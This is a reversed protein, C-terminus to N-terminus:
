LNRSAALREIRLSVKLAMDNVERRLAAAEPSQADLAALAKRKAALEHLLTVEPPAFGSDKLAKFAMRLEPPTEDYGDGFDIPKGYHKAQALEGSAQAERLAAAIQEDLTRLRKEDM